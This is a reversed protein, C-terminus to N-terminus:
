RHELQHLHKQELRHVQQQQDLRHRHRLILPPQRFHCEVVASTSNM